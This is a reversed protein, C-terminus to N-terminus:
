EKDTDANEENSASTPAKKKKYYTIGAIALVVVGVIIGIILATNNKPEEEEVLDNAPPVPLADISRADVHGCESCTREERGEVGIDAEKVVCWEGYKHGPAVRTAGCINCTDDECDDYDHACAINLAAYIDAADSSDVYITNEHAFAIAILQLNFVDIVQDLIDTYESIDVGFDDLGLNSLSSEMGTIVVTADPAEAYVTDLTIEIRDILDAYAYILCEAMYTLADAVLEDRIDIGAGAFAELYEGMSERLTSSLDEAVGSAILQARLSDLVKDLADKGEDDLHKDWDLETGYNLVQELAFDIM